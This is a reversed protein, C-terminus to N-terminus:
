QHQLSQTYRDFHAKTDLHHQGGMPDHLGFHQMGMAQCIDVKLLYNKPNVFYIRQVHPDQREVCNQFLINDILKQKLEPCVFRCVYLTVQLHPYHGYLDPAMHPHGAMGMHGQGGLGGAMKHEKKWKMRRNGFWIKIQKESM